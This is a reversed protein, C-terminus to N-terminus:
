KSQGGSCASTLRRGQQVADVHGDRALVVTENLQALFVYVSDRSRAEVAASDAACAPPRPPGYVAYYWDPSVPTQYELTTAVLFAYSLLRSDTALHLDRHMFTNWAALDLERTLAGDPRQNLLVVRNGDVGFVASIVATNEEFATFSVLARGGLLSNRLVTLRGCAGRKYRNEDLNTIGALYSRGVAAVATDLIVSRQVTRIAPDASLTACAVQQTLVLSLLSLL